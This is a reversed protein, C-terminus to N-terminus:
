CCNWNRYRHNPASDCEPNADLKAQLTVEGRETFKLANGIVNLLIQRLRTPDTQVSVPIADDFVAKLVISRDTARVSFLDFVDSILKRLDTSEVEFELKGAEIKSLDLIDDIIQMLGHGNRKITSVFRIRDADSTNKRVLMDTFGLIAGLPTRIEHSMNALFHGKAQNANEAQAKAKQLDNQITKLSSIDQFALAVVADRGFLPAILSSDVLLVRRGQATDWIIEASSVREGRAARLSPFQDFPLPNGHEDKFNYANQYDEFSEVVPFQGGAVSNAAKNAFRVRGTKSEILVFPLPFFDLLSEFWRGENVREEEFYKKQTGDRIIKAFGRIGGSATFLLSVSGTAWFRQGNKRVLWRDVDYRQARKARDLEEYPIGKARDKEDFLLEVHSGLAEQPTYGFLDQAGRNWQNIKGSKDLLIMAHDATGEVLLAFHEQSVRANEIERALAVEQERKEIANRTARYIGQPSIDSKLFYDSAGLKLAQVAVREDGRGTVMVVPPHNDGKAARLRKLFDIGDFDPMQYDLLVCDFSEKLLTDLGEQAMECEVFSYHSEKDESLFKRYIERDEVTDDIILIRHTGSSM